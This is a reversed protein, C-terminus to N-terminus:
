GPCSRPMVYRYWILLPATVHYWMYKGLHHADAERKKSSGSTSASPTAMYAPTQQAPERATQKRVGLQKKSNQVWGHGLSSKVTQVGTTSSADPERAIVDLM